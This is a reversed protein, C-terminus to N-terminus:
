RVSAADRCRSQDRDPTTYDFEYLDIGSGGVVNDAFQGARVIITDDGAGADITDTSFGGEITDNGGLSNITNEGGTGFIIDANNTGILNEFGVMVETALGLTATGAGLNFTAGSVSPSALSWDITDNGSGGDHRDSNIPSIVRLTDNGNGGYYEKISGAETITANGDHGFVQSASGDATFVDDGITGIQQSDPSYVAPNNVFDRTDMIKVRINGGSNWTVTFRGDAHGVAEIQTISAGGTNDILFDAAVTFLNGNAAVGFRSGRIEGTTDDDWVVVYGGDSLAAIAPENLNNASSEALFVGQAAVGASNYARMFISTGETWTVAFGGGTLAVVQPDFMEGVSDVTGSTVFGGAANRIQFLLSDNGANKNVYTVVYNGNNLVAIDPGSADEGAGTSGFLLQVPAQFTDTLPNYHRIFIDDSGDANVVHYATMVSADSSSAIVPNIPNSTGL